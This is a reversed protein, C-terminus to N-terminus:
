IKGMASPPHRIASQREQQENFVQWAFARMNAEMQEPKMRGRNEANENPEHRRGREANRLKKM